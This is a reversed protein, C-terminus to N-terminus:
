FKEFVGMGFLAFDFRVPDSPDISRLNDTLELVALWDRQRRTLLGLRRAVREVHVDLPCLLQSPSIKDWIGFDVGHIDKRVMWRLYMNLRKCTSGREPTAIHKRTRHPADPLSFFLRHFGSIAPGVHTDTSQLSGSFADELTTHELYYWRFFAMCYLLDTANFTRHVFTEFRQLDKDTHQLVFAHPANDMLDMLRNCSNIITTRQGWALIAAFFAAIEIDQKKTFRHPISIPDKEIFSPQDYLLYNEELLETVVPNM